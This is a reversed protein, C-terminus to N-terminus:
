QAEKNNMVSNFDSKKRKKSEKFSTKALIFFSTLKLLYGILIKADMQTEM